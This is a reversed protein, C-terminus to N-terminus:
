LRSIALGIAQGMIAAERIGTDFIRLEGYKDQIGAFGQDVDGVRVWM